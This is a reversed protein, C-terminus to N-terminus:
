ATKTSNIKLVFHVHIPKATQSGKYNHAINYKKVVGWEEYRKKKKIIRGEVWM